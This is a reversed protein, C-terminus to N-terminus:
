MDMLEDAFDDLEIVKIKGKWEDQFDAKRYESSITRRWGVIEIKWGRALARLVMRLFGQSFEAEAADGTALVMTSPKPADIISEIMKLHLIEDVGQEVWQKQPTSLLFAPTASDSASDTTGGGGSSQYKSRDRTSARKSPSSQQQSAFYKQRATMEKVKFVRDLLSLEYGAYQLNEFLPDIPRASTPKSGALVRRSTPRGRELVLALAKASMKGRWRTVNHKEKMHDYFGIMINSADIFIHLGDKQTTKGINGTAFDPAVLYRRDKSFKEAVKDFLLNYREAPSILAEPATHVPPFPKAFPDVHALISVYHDSFYKADEGPTYYPQPVPSRSTIPPAPCLEKLTSTVQSPVSEGPQAAEHPCGTSDAAPDRLDQVVFESEKPPSVGLFEFVRGLRGLSPPSGDVSTDPTASSKSVESRSAETSATQYTIDNNLAPDLHSWLKLAQSLDWHAPSQAPSLTNADTDQM